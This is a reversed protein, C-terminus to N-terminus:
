LTEFVSTLTLNTKNQEWELCPQYYDFYVVNYEKRRCAKFSLFFDSVLVIVSTSLSKDFQLFDLTLFSGARFEQPVFSVGFSM